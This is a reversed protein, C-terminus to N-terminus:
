PKRRGEDYRMPVSADSCRRAPLCQMLMKLLIVFGKNQLKKRSGAVLRPGLESVDGVLYRTFFLMPLPMVFMWILFTLPPRWSRLFHLEAIVLADSVFRAM